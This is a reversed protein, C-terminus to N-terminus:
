RNQPIKYLMHIRKTSIPSIAGYSKTVKFGLPEVVSDLESPTCAFVPQGDPTHYNFPSRGGPTLRQKFLEATRKTKRVFQIPAFRGSYIIEVIADAIKPVLRWQEIPGHIVIGCRAVRAFERLMTKAIVSPLEFHFLRLCVVYDVSDNALPLHEAEVQTLGRVAPLYRYPAAIQGMMDRSIDGCIVSHGWKQFLPILRGTGCPIDLVTSGSPWEGCIRDILSYERVWSYEKSRSYDYNSAEYQNYVHKGLYSM